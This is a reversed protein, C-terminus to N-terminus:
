NGSGPKWSLRCIFAHFLLIDRGRVQEEEEGKRERKEREEGRDERRGGVSTTPM